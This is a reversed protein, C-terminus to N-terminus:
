EPPRVKKSVLPGAPSARARSPAGAPHQFPLQGHCTFADSACGVRQRRGEATTHTGATCDGCRTRCANMHLAGGGLGVKHVQKQGHRWGGGRCV